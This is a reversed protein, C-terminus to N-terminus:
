KINLIIDNFGLDTAFGNIILEEYYKEKKSFIYSKPMEKYPKYALNKPPSNDETVTYLLVPIGLKSAFIEISKLMKEVVLDDSKKISFIRLFPVIKKLGLSFLIINKKDEDSVFFTLPSDKQIFRWKFFEMSKQDNYNFSDMIKIINPISEQEKNNIFAFDMSDQITKVISHNRFFFKIPSRPFIFKRYWHSQFQYSGLRKYARAIRGLAGSLIVPSDQLISDQMLKLGLQSVKDRDVMLDHLSYFYKVENKHLVPAEFEHFCGCVQDDKFALNITHNPNSDLWSIFSYSSQHSGKGWSIEAFKKYSIYDTLHNYKRYSIM